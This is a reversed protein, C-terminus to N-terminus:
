GINTRKKNEFEGQGTINIDKDSFEIKMRLSKVSNWDGKAFYKPNVQYVGRAKRILVEKKVFETIANNVTGLVMDVSNAIQEKIYKNLSVVQDESAWPMRKLIEYLIPNLASPIDKLNLVTDLYMKVFPPECEVYGETVKKSEHHTIEGTNNNYSRIETNTEKTIKKKNM